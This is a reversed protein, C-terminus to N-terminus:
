GGVLPLLKVFAVRTDRGVAIEEDLSEVQRGDVLMFFGNGEFARLALDCQEDEDLARRKRLRYGNLEVETDTPQILGRFIKAGREQNFARVEGRVRGEIIERVSVHESVLELRTERLVEGGATEDVIKLAAEM